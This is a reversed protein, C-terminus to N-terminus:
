SLGRARMQANAFATFPAEGVTELSVAEVGAISVGSLMEVGALDVGALIQVAQRLDAVEAAHVAEAIVEPSHSKATLLWTDFNAEVDAALDPVDPVILEYEDYEAFEVPDGDDIAVKVKHANEYFRICM